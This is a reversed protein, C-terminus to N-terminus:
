PPQPLTMKFTFSIQHWSESSKFLQAGQAQREAIMERQRKNERERERGGEKEMHPRELMSAEYIALSRVHCRSAAFVCTGLYIASLM